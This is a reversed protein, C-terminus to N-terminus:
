VFMDVLGETEFCDVVGVLANSGVFSLSLLVGEAALCFDNLEVFSSTIGLNQM